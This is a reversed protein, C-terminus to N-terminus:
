STAAVEAVVGGQVVEVPPPVEAGVEPITGAIADFESLTSADDSCIVAKLKAFEPMRSGMWYKLLPVRSADAEAHDTLIVAGLLITGMDVIRRAYLRRYDGDRGDKIFEAVETLEGSADRIQQVAEAVFPDSWNTRDGLIMDIVSHVTGGLVGGVAAVIQLQSTGEYISTIRSDRWLRELPHDHMYGSGGMVSIATHAVRTSMESAWYKAIPTMMGNIRRFERAENKLRKIEDKDTATAQAKRIGNDKDVCYSAFYTLARVAQLEASMEVLMEKVAPFTDITTGFQMRKSAYERAFRYAAEGIGLAQAAVGMRAGYMLAMVYKILGQQREGVLRAPTDTFELECTPSGHIGVKNELRRVKVTPGREVLFLSLGRGDTSDPESRALVLLVHGCGNTIFRKVGRIRWSGDENEFARVKVSQLDSGANPETLVMAGTKKGASMEPLVEAKIEDSAFHSITEAIGQLGYLNMLSADARSVIDISMTYVLNPCNQGGYQYPLTFGMFGERGLEEIARAIGPPYTVSGDENLINGIEDTETATPAIVQASLKGVRDLMGRYRDLAEKEDAPAIGYKGAFRFGEEMISGVEGINMHNFLFQIQENDTFYNGM